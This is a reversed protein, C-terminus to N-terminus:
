KQKTWIVGRKKWYYTIDKELKLFTRINKRGMEKYSWAKSYVNSNNDRRLNERSINSDVFVKGYRGGVLWSTSDISYFPYKKLAWLANVGFGHIKKPWYKKIVSFCTDLFPEVVTRPSGVTGGLAIFDYNQLYYELHKIDERLHYTPVPSLGAKEMIEQNKLTGDADGIVDLNAYYEINSENRKLFDIYDEIKLEKGQTWATFAGSDVFMNFEPYRNAKGELWSSLVNEVGIEKIGILDVFNLAGALYIKM